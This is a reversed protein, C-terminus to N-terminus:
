LKKLCKIKKIDKVRCSSKSDKLKIFSINNSFKFLLYKIINYIWLYIFVLGCVENHGKWNIYYMKDCHSWRSYQLNKKKTWFLILKSAKNM